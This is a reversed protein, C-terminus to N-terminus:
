EVQLGNVARALTRKELQLRAYEADTKELVLKASATKACEENLSAQAARLAARLHTTVNVEPPTSSSLSSSEPILSLVLDASSSAYPGTLPKYSGGIAATPMKSHNTLNRRTSQNIHRSFQPSLFGTQTQDRSRGKNDERGRSSKMKLLRILPRSNGLGLPEAQGM